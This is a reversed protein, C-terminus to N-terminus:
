LVEYLHVAATSSTSGTCVGELTSDAQVCEFDSNSNSAHRGNCSKYYYSSDRIVTSSGCVCSVFVGHCCSSVAAASSSRHLPHALVLALSLLAHVLLLGQLLPQCQSKPKDALLQV